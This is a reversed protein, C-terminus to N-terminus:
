ESKLNSVSSLGHFEMGCAFLRGFDQPAEAVRMVPLRIGHETNVLAVVVDKDIDFEAGM